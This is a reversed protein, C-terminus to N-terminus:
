NQGTLKVKQGQLPVKVKLMSPPPGKMMDSVMLDVQMNQSMGVDLLSLDKPQSEFEGKHRLDAIHMPELRDIVDQVNDQPNVKIQVQETGGRRIKNVTLTFAGCGGITCGAADPADAVAPEIWDTGMSAALTVLLILASKTAMAERRNGM